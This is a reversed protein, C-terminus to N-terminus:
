VGNENSTGGIKPIRIIAKKANQTTVKKNM